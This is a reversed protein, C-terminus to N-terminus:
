ARQYLNLCMGVETEPGECSCVKGVQILYTDRLYNGPLDAGETKPGGRNVEAAAAAADVVAGCDSSAETAARLQSLAGQERHIQRHEDHRRWLTSESIVRNPTTQLTIWIVDPSSM